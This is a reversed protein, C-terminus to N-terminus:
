NPDSLAPNSIFTEDTLSHLFALLDRKETETMEFGSIFPSKLPNQRGVGAYKGHYLTRGGVRYHEIVEELTAMSGDHMYPAAFPQNGVKALFRITVPQTEATTVPNAIASLGQVSHPLLFTLTMVSQITFKVPPM